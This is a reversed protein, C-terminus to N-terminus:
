VRIRLVLQVLHWLNSEIFHKIPYETSTNTNMVALLVLLDVGNLTFKETLRFGPMNVVLGLVHNKLCKIGIIHGRIVELNLNMIAIYLFKQLIFVSQEVLKIGQPKVEHGLTINGDGFCFVVEYYEFELDVKSAAGGGELKHSFVHQDFELHFLITLLIIM